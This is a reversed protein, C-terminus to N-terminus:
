RREMELMRAKLGIGGGFGGLSGDKRIVRHCPIIIPFPNKAMTNGIFRAAAPSGIVTAIDAYNRTQGYPIAYVAQLVHIQKETLSGLDLRHWFSLCPNREGAFYLRVAHLIDDVESSKGAINAKGPSIGYREFVSPSLTGPLGIALITDSFSQWVIWATGMATEFNKIRIM